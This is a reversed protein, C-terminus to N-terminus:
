ARRQKNLWLEVSALMDSKTLQVKYFASTSPVETQFGGPFRQEFLRFGQECLSIELASKAPGLVVIRDEEITVSEPTTLQRLKRVVEDMKSM